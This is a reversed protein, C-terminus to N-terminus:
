HKVQFVINMYTKDSFAPSSVLKYTMVGNNDVSVSSFVANDYYTIFYELETKSYVPLPTTAGPSKASSVTQTLSFQEAYQAYLDITFTQSVANYAPDSTEVPLLISPMYFFSPTASDNDRVWQSGDDYYVGPTVDNVGTTTTATNYVFMGKEHSSMPSPSTTSQLSVRPLLLGKTSTGGATEKLDLLSSQSPTNMSGITVQAKSNAISILAFIGALLFLKKRNQM